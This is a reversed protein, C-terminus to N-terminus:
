IATIDLLVYLVCFRITVPFVDLCVIRAFQPIPVTRAPTVPMVLQREKRHHLRGQLAFTATILVLQLFFDLRVIFVPPQILVKQVRLVTMASLLEMLLLLKEPPVPLAHQPIQHRIFDVRVIKASLQATVIPERKVHLAVQLHLTQLLPGQLVILALPLISTQISEQQAVIAVQLAAVLIGQHAHTVHLLVLWLVQHLTVLLAILVLQHMALQISGVLVRNVCLQAQVIIDRQALIALHVQLYLKFM